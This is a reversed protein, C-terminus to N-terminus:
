QGEKTLPAVAPDKKSGLVGGAKAKERALYQDFATCKKAAEAYRLSLPSNL